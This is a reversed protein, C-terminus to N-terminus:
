AQMALAKCGALDLKGSALLPIADVRRLTKPIWLNPVGIKALDARLRALDLDISSLLVLAEGKAEDAVGAVAIVRESHEAMELVSLIKQEITEHPVMEGGIKSFRSLRGEIYLFGDEDFRGIDGTKLWSDRLVEATKEPADLYGEFINSGRVWLMGSDHLSLKRDTEPERIEAAMGPLLKGASGPRNSPQVTEGPKKAKPEPLNVSVVPATETLGYGQLVEKGFRAEFAKALEDPLKEAGTIILRLSRLQAPEAKRLYARLFTPTALMITVKHREVLNAIKGAELPNPYSATRVGEILPYWLTVTCGFSHFFPLSALLVDEKRADLMMAFQSVNGLINRHSLVVGKPQGSSGSTFLLLAEAHDGVRPIKLLRALIAAPMALGLLWWGLIAPKMAPLIEDLHIVQPTWPFDEFRKAVPRATVITRLGAQEKASEISERASTFNVNVPIKGAFIVALNAVVGGKGPPLVIGIRREPCKEKLHRSLALAVGLLKGRTLSSNDLGDTIAVRFRNRKLGRLCARALHGRLIPRQSYCFEGIKLLEERVTAIDADAAPLPKGFAVMVRYPVARPWKTFFRGGQFSFISGWLRDLWVPLVPAEAQRAIMEYGRRLRLLSGSRSLQGEPFLCVIEGARIKAAAERMADKAKRSTIPICGVTRLVPHLIRNRYFSEDIIFRIPRPCALLLVIADVWTIHNPLLLFGGPPLNERGSAAVRYVLRALGLGFFRLAREAASIKAM